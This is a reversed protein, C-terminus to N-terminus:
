LTYQHTKSSPIFGRSAALYRQLGIEFAEKTDYNVDRLNTAANRQYNHHDMLDEASLWDGGSSLRVARWLGVPKNARWVHLAAGNNLISAKETITEGNAPSMNFLLSYDGNNSAEYSFIFKAPPHVIRAKELSELLQRLEEAGAHLNDPSSPRNKYLGFSFHSVGYRANLEEVMGAMSSANVNCVMPMMWLRDGRFARAVWALNKELKSYAGEGRIYDNFERQGDLSIDVWDLSSRELRERYGQLLTGNTIVGIETKKPTQTADRIKLADFMVDVSESKAFVEKGAFVVARPQLDGFLSAFVSSWEDRDLPHPEHMGELYCSKCQLNCIDNLLISVVVPVTLESVSEELGDYLNGRLSGAM